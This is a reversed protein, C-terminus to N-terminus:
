TSESFIRLLFLSAINNRYDILVQWLLCALHKAHMYIKIDKKNLDVNGCAIDLLMVSFLDDEAAMSFKSIMEVRTTQITPPM